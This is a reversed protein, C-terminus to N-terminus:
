VAKPNDKDVSEVKKFHDWVISQNVPPKKTQTNQPTSSQSNISSPPASNDEMPFPAPSDVPTMSAIEHNTGSHNDDM